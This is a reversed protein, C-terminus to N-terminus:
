PRDRLRGLLRDIGLACAAVCALMVFFPMRFSLAPGLVAAATGVGLASLLYSLRSRRYNELAAKMAWEGSAPIDAMAFDWLALSASAGLVMLGEPVSLLLGIAAVLISACLCLSPYARWAFLWALASALAASEWYWPMALGYGLAFSALAAGWYAFFFLKRAPNARV